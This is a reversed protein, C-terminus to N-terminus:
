GSCLRDSSPKTIKGHGISMEEIDSWSAPEHNRRLGFAIQGAGKPNREAICRLDEVDRGAIRQQREFPMIRLSQQLLSQEDIEVLNERAIACVAATKDRM